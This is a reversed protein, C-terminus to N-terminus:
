RDMQRKVQTEVSHPVESEFYESIASIARWDNWFEHPIRKFVAISKMVMQDNLRRLSAFKQVSSFNSPVTLAFLQDCSKGSVISTSGRTTLSNSSSMAGVSSGSSGKTDIRTYQGNEEAKVFLLFLRLL